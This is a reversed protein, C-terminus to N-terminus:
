RIICVTCNGNEQIDDRFADDDQIKREPDFLVFLIHRTFATYKILDAGIQDTIKSKSVKGRLYKAEIFIDEISHDPIVKALAYTVTPFERKLRLEEDILFASIYDNLIKESGPLTTQFAIPITKKLRSTLSLIFRSIDSELYDRKNIIQLVSGEPAQSLLDEYKARMRQAAKFVQNGHRRCLGWVREIVEYADLDPLGDCIDTLESVRETFFRDENDQMFSYAQNMYDVIRNKAENDSIADRVIDLNYIGSDIDDDLEAAYAAFRRDICQSCCGCHTAPGTRQFTRGCSVSSSILHKGGFAVLKKFVDAKTDWIYPTFIKIPKEAVESFFARLCEIAKPHTTRSARANIRDQGRSLNLATVGNEYIYFHEVGCAQALAFAISTYLFSRTRQTEEKAHVGRLGCNFAYHDVKKPYDSKLKGFLSKQTKVSSPQGSQHSILFVKENSQRIRDLAGALSDLGGSFLLINANGELQVINDADFLNSPPPSHGPQFTFGYERDGTIFKLSEGLLHSIKDSRWFEYDRVRINFHFDRSWNHYEVSEKDGRSFSRDACFAYVAIELLDYIRKEHHFINGGFGPLRLRVQPFKANSSEIYDLQLPEDYHSMDRPPVANNCLVLHPHHISV